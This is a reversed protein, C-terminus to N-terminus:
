LAPPNWPYFIDYKKSEDNYQTPGVPLISWLCLKGCGRLDREEDYIDFSHQQNSWAFSCFFLTNLFIANPRFSFSWNLNPNIVQVGLDDDKSKCHVTLAEGLGNTITVTTTAHKFLDTRVAQCMPGLLMLVCVSRLVVKSPESMKRAM